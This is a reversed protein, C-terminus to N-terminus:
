GSRALKLSRALAADLTDAVRTPAIAFREGLQVLTAPPAGDDAGLGFRVRILEADRASPLSRRALAAVRTDPELWRQWPCLTRTWDPLTAGPMLIPAARQRDTRTEAPHDRVWRAALRDVALAMPGALRGGRHPEYLDIARAAADIAPPIAALVWAAPLEALPRQARSEVTEVILRLHARLLEAKLRAAWRLRTTITDIASPSPHLPDLQQIQERALTRLRHYALARSREEVALPPPARRVTQLLELLDTTPATGLGTRAPLAELPDPRAASRHEPRPDVGAEPGQHPPSLSGAADRAEHQDTNAPTAILSRLREAEALALARRVASRSRKALRALRGVEVGMRYARDIAKRRQANLPSDEPFGLESAHRQLLQRIGEHSRNTRAAIRKAAANLSLGLLTRYRRAHRLIRDRQEPTLRDYGGPRAVLTPHAREFAEIHTITFTLAARGRPTRVRRAVLGQSRLRAITAASAKWRAVLESASLSPPPAPGDPGPTGESIAQAFADLDPLLQRGSAVDSAMPSSSPEPPLLRFRLWSEPYSAAPDVQLSLEEVTDLARLREAAPLARVADILRSTLPLRPRPLPPM